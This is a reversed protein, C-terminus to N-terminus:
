HVTREEPFRVSERDIFIMLVKMVKGYPEAENLFDLFLGLDGYDEVEEFLRLTRIATDGDPYEGLEAYSRIDNWLRTLSDKTTQM